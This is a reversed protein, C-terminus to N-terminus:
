VCVSVAASSLKQKNCQEKNELFDDAQKLLATRSLPLTSSELGLPQPNSGRRLCQMTDKLVPEVWSFGDRCLLFITSQPRFFLFLISAKCSIDIMGKKLSVVNFISGVAFKPPANHYRNLLFIIQM